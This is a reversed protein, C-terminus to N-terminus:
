AELKAKMRNLLIKTSEIKKLKNNEKTIKMLEKGLDDLSKNAILCLEKELSLDDKLKAIQKKNEENKRILVTTEKKIAVENAKFKKSAIEQGKIKKLLDENIKKLRASEKKLVEVEKKMDTKDEPYVRLLIVDSITMKRNEAETVIKTYDEIPIRFSVSRTTM